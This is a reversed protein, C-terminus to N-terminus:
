PKKKQSLGFDAVKARFKQDVLINAAKLDGTISKSFAVFCPTLDSERFCYILVVMGFVVRVMSPDAAHLFRVSQSIDRLIPLLLEGEIAVTENHLMNYM